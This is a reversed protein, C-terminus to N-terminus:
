LLRMLCVFSLHKACVAIGEQMLSVVVFLSAARPVPLSDFIQYRARQVGATTRFSAFSPGLLLLLLSFEIQAKALRKM